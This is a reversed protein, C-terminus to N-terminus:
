YGYSKSNIDILTGAFSISIDDYTGEYLNYDQNIVLNSVIYENLKEKFYENEFLANIFQNTVKTEM